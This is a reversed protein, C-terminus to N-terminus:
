SSSSTFMGDTVPSNAPAFVYQSALATPAHNTVTYTMVPLSIYQPDSVPKLHNLAKVLASTSISGVNKAALAVLQLMDYSLSYTYIPQTIAGQAKIARIGKAVGATQQNLPKYHQLILAIIQINSLQSTPVLTTLPTAAVALNGVVPM